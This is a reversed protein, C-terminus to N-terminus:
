QSDKLVHQWAVANATKRLLFLLYKVEQRVEVERGLSKLMGGVVYVHAWQQQQQQKQKQQQKQQQEQQQQQASV